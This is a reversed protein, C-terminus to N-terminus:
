LLFFDTAKEGSVTKPKQVGLRDIMIAYTQGETSKPMRQDLRVLSSFVRAETHKYEDVGYFFGETLGLKPTASGGMIEVKGKSGIVTSSLIVQSVDDHVIIDTFSAEFLSKIESVEVAEINQVNSTNQTVSMIPTVPFGLAAAGVGGLIEISSSLGQRHSSIMIGVGNYSAKYPNSTGANIQDLISEMTETGPEFIINFVREGDVKFNFDAGGLPVVVPISEGIIAGRSSKFEFTQGEALPDTNLLTPALATTGDVDLTITDGDKLVFPSPRQGYVLAPRSEPGKKSLPSNVEGGYGGVLSKIKYVGANPGENITLLEGETLPGWDQNVGEFDPYDIIMNDEVTLRGTIGSPSMSYSYPNPDTSVPFYLVEKVRYTGIRAPDDEAADSSNPGTLISVTAGPSIDSFDRNPDSFLSRDNWTVGDTGYVEKSGFCFRRFDDYYYNDWEFTMSDQFLTQFAERFMHRYDYLTHAPKLARMVIRMNEETKLPQDPFMSILEHTHGSNPLVVYDVVEHVHGTEDEATQGTGNDDLNVTHHHGGVFSTKEINTLNIEFQFQEDFGWSSMKNDRSTISKEIVELHADTILKAGEEVTLKTAGDILLLAMRRLFERYTVDGSIDPIGTDHGDPFVLSGVIKWLFEPRTFDFESDAFLEQFEVQIRAIQDAAAKFQLTYFPGMTQSVYNSPLVSVFSQM